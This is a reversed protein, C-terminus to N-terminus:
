KLRWAQPRRPAPRGFRSLQDSKRKASCKSKVSKELSGDSVVFIVDIKKSPPRDGARMVM